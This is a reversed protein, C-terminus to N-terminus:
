ILLSILALILLAGSMMTRSSASTISTTSTSTSASASTSTSTSTSASTSTSTSTSSPSSASSSGHPGMCVTSVCTNSDYDVIFGPKCVAIRCDNQDWQGNSGCVYGSKLANKDTSSCNETIYLLRKNNPNCISAASSSVQLAAVAIGMVSNPDNFYPFKYDGLNVDIKNLVFDRPITEDLNKSLPYQEAIAVGTQIGFKKCDDAVDPFLDTISFVANSAIQSATFLPEDDYPTGVGAVIAQGFELVTNVFMACASACSGDTVVVVDKPKRPHKTLAYQTKIMDNLIVYDVSFKDTREHKVNGGYDDIVTGNLFSLYNKETLSECTKTSMCQQGENSIVLNKLVQVQDSKRFAKIIHTDYDPFLLFSLLRSFLESGGGNGLVSVLIPVDNDDFSKVCEAMQSLMCMSEEQTGSGPMFTPVFLGDFMNTKECSIYTTKCGDRLENRRELFEHWNINLDDRISWSRSAPADKKGFVFTFNLKSDDSFVLEHVGFEEDDLPQTLISAPFLSGLGKLRSSYLIAQLSKAASTENHFGRFYEFADMGDVTKVATKNAYMGKVDDLFATGLLASLDNENIFVKIKGDEGLVPIWEFPFAYVVNAFLNNSSSTNTFKMNFHGDYFQGVFRSLPRFVKSTNGGSARLETKLSELDKFYDVPKMFAKMEEPLNKTIDVYPYVSGALELQKIIAEVFEMPVTYSNFCNKVKEGDLMFIESSAVYDCDESSAALVIVAALILIFKMM